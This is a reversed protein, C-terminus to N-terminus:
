LGVWHGFRFTLLTHFGTIIDREKGHDGSGFCRFAFLVWSYSATCRFSVKILV